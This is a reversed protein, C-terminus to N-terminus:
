LYRTWLVSIQTTSSTSPCSVPTCAPNYGSPLNKLNFTTSAGWSSSVATTGQNTVTVYGVITTNGSTQISNGAIVSGYIANGAGLNINGGMFTTSQYGGALMAVNGIAQPTYATPTGTSPSCFQDPYTGPFISNSCTPTFGSYNPAYLYLQGSTTINGAAIITNYLYSSGLNVSGNFWVVGPALTPQNAQGPGTLTWQTFRSDNPDTGVSFCSNSNGRCIRVTCKTGDFATLTAPCLYDQGLLNYNGDAIGSVGSVKVTTISTPTGNITVIKRDFLYNALNQYAYADVKNNQVTVPNLPMSISYAPVFTSGLGSTINQASPNTAPNVKGGITGKAVAGYSSINLDGHAQLMQTINAGSMNANGGTYIYSSKADGSLNVDSLANVTTGTVGTLNVTKNADIEDVSAAGSLTVNGLSKISTYHGSSGTISIDGNSSLGTVTQTGSLTISGTSSLIGVNTLTGTGTVNGDVTINVKTDFAINGSNNLNGRITIATPTGTSGGSGAGSVCYVAQVTSTAGGSTGTFNATVLETQVTGGAVAACKAAHTADSAVPAVGVVLGAVGTVGGLTIANGAALSTTGALGIQYLYQRFAEVGNWAKMQAQTAGHATVMSDQESRIYYMTGLVAASLSLGVLLVLLIAALGHQGHASRQPFTTPIM